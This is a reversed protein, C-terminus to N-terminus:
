LGIYLRVITYIHFQQKSQAKKKSKKPDRHVEFAEIIPAIFTLCSQNGRIWTTRFMKRNIVRRGDLSPDKRHFNANRAWGSMIQGEIEETNRTVVFPLQHKDYKIHSDDLMIKSIPALDSIEM